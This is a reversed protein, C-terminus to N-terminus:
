KISGSVYTEIPAAALILVTALLYLRLAQGRELDGVRAALYAWVGIAFAPVELWAHPLIRVLAADGLQGVAFGAVFINLVLFTGVVLDTIRRIWPPKGDLAEQRAFHQLGACSALVALLILNSRLIHVLAATSTDRDPVELGRPLLIGAALGFSLVLLAGIAVQKGRHDVRAPKKPPRTLGHPLSYGNM